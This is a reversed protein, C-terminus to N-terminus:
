HRFQAIIRIDQGVMRLDKIELKFKQDLRILEPLNIMGCAINGLLHPALFIILEDVLGAKILAGNLQSGAEVLLENIELGALHQMMKVLDVGGNGNPLEIVQVGLEHLQIIKIKHHIATFIIVGSDHLLNADHPIELRSDVIVKLPQRPTDIHRVTLRPNDAKITGMGTLIACCRARWRHGDQRAAPGTIWQSAGNNLATKGDISAAIKVRVWPRQHHMRHIFGPNLAEAQSELLGTQVEIGKQKLLAIGNNASVLPNPDKMAIIIKAIGASALSETCPPTRGTHSCPELTVYLTAGKAAVAASNLANIEAHPQGASEHWGTGVVQGNRVIVCGVRPNPPTSYLGKEALQIAQAMYAYDAASFM